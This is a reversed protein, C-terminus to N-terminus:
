FEERTKLIYEKAKDTLNLHFGASECLCHGRDVETLTWGASTREITFRTSQPNFCKARYANSFHQANQDIHAVIGVMASKPIDLKREIKAIAYEIDDYDALRVSCREQVANLMNEIRERNSEKVAIRDRVINGREVTYKKM